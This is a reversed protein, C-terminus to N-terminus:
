PKRKIIYPKGGFELLFDRERAELLKWGKNASGAKLSFVTRTRTDKFIYSRAANQEVVYGIAQIWSAEEVPPALAGTQAALAARPERWGFLAAVQTPSAAQGGSGAPEVAVAPSVPEEGGASGPSRRQRWPVVLLVALALVLAGLAFDPVWRSSRKM